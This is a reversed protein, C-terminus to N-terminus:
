TMVGRCRRCKFLHVRASLVHNMVLPVIIIWVLRDGRTHKHAHRNALLFADHTTTHQPTTHHTPITAVISRIVIYLSRNHTVVILGSSSSARQQRSSAFKIFSHIFICITINKDCVQACIYVCASAISRDVRCERLQSGYRSTHNYEFRRHPQM